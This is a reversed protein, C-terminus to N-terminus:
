IPVCEGYTTRAGRRSTEAPLSALGNERAIPSLFRRVGRGGIGDYAVARGGHMPPRKGLRPRKGLGVWGAGLNGRDRPLALKGAADGPEASLQNADAAPDTEPTGVETSALSLTGRSNWIRSSGSAQTRLRWLMPLQSRGSVIRGRLFRTGGHWSSTTSGPPDWLFVAPGDILSDFLGIM